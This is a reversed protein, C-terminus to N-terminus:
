YFDDYYVPGFTGSGLRGFVRGFLTSLPGSSNARFAFTSQGAVTILVPEADDTGQLFLRYTNAHNNVVMWLRYWTNGAIPFDRFVGGDRITLVNDVIGIQVRFDNWISPTAVDTLGISQNESGGSTRFRYFLTAATSDAPIAETLARRLTAGSEGGQALFQGSNGLSDAEVTIGSGSLTWPMGPPAGATYSEFTDQELWTAQAFQGAAMALLCATHALFRPYLSPASPLM